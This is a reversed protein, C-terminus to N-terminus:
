RGTARHLAALLQELQAVQWQQFTATAPSLTETVTAIPIREARALANLQDIEPTVNQSNFVWVAIEHRRLQRDVAEKDRVSVDAGEAIAKAFAPPTLLRLGLDRGLPEFVTESYGVPVGAFRRRIEARLADYRALAKSDFRRRRAAFYAADKPDARQYAATIAASVRRVAPPSYWQHPNDGQSLGLIDGASVVQTAGGDAALLRTAWTDYGIGNVIAVKAGALKRADSPTPEYDHPDTSPDVIVSEVTAHDGGLQAAISGWFNEAAVVDLRSGTVAAQSGCGSLTLLAVAAALLPIRV